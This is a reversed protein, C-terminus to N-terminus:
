RRRAKRIETGIMLKDDEVRTVYRDLPRSAPGGMVQGDISFRSEHCPCVFQNDSQDWHYACGLHTCQPSYAIVNKDDTRVVWAVVKEKFTRWGDVRDRNFTVEQPKGVQLQTLNAAEVFRGRKKSGGTVLLYAAAPVGMGFGILSSVGSLLASYFSRRTQIEM